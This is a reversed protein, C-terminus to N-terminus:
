EKLNEDDEADEDISLKDIIEMAKEMGKPGYPLTKALDDITFQEDYMETIFHLLEEFEDLPIYEKDTKKDLEQLNKGIRMINIMDLMTRESKAYYKKGEIEVYARAM